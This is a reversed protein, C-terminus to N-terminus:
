EDCQDTLGQTEKRTRRGVAKWLERAVAGREKGTTKAEGLLQEEESRLYGMVAAQSGGAAFAAKDIFATDSSSQCMLNM